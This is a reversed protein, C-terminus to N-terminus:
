LPSYFSACRLVGNNRSVTRTETASAFYSAAGADWGSYQNNYQTSSFNTFGIAASGNGNSVGGIIASSAVLNFTAAGGSVVGVQLVQMNDGVFRYIGTYPTVSTGGTRTYAITASTGTPVYGHFLAIKVSDGGDAASYGTATDILALPIGGVTCTEILWSTQTATQDHAVAVIYRFPDATGLQVTSTTTYGAFTFSSIGYRRPRKGYFDSYNIAGSSFTGIGGADTYWNTGRYANLNYGRGFEANIASMSLAGSAPLTM